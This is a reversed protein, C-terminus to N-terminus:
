GPGNLTSVDGENGYEFIVELNEGATFSDTSMNFDVWLDADGTEPEVNIFAEFEGYDTSENYVTASFCVEGTEDFTIELTMTDSEGAGMRIMNSEDVLDDQDCDSYLRVTAWYDSDGENSWEAIIEYEVNARPPPTGAPEYLDSVLLDDSADAEVNNVGFVVLILAALLFIRLHNM